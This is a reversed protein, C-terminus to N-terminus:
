KRIGLEDIAVLAPNVPPHLVHHVEGALCAVCIV